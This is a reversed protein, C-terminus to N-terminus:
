GGCDFSDGKQRCLWWSGADVVQDCSIPIFFTYQISRFGILWVLRIAFWLSLSRRGRLCRDGDYADGDDAADRYPCTVIGDMRGSAKSDDHRHVIVNDSQPATTTSSLRMTM